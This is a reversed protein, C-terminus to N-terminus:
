NFRQIKDSVKLNPFISRGKNAETKSGQIRMIYPPIKKDLCEDFDDDTDKKTKQYPLVDHVFRLSTSLRVSTQETIQDSLDLSHDYSNQENRDAHLLEVPNPGVGVHERIFNNM